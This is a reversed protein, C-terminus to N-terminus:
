HRLLIISTLIHPTSVNIDYRNNLIISIILVTVQKYMYMYIFILYMYVHTM